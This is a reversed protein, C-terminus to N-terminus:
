TVFCSRPEVSGSRPGSRMDRSAATDGRDLIDSAAVSVLYRAGGGMALAQSLWRGAEAENRLNWHLLALWAVNAASGSDLSAAKKALPGGRGSARSWVSAPVRIASTGRPWRRSSRSRPPIRRAGRRLSGHGGERPWALGSYGGLFPRTDCRATDATGPGRGAVATPLVLMSLWHYAPAYNANLEISRRFLRETREYDFRVLRGHRVIGVGRRPGCGAEASRVGCEGRRRPDIEATADGYDVRLTM